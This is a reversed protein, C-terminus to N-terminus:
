GGARPLTLTNATTNVSGGTADALLKAIETLLFPLNTLPTATGAVSGKVADVVQAFKDAALNYTKKAKNVMAADWSANVEKQLIFAKATPFALTGVTEFSIVMIETRQQVTQMGACALLFLFLIPVAFARKM